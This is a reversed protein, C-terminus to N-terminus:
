AGTPQKNQLEFNTILTNAYAWIKNQEKMPLRQINLVKKLIRTDVSEHEDAAAAEPQEGLLDTISVNL